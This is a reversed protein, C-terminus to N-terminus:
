ASEKWVKNGLIELILSDFQFGIEYEAGIFTDSDVRSTYCFINKLFNFFEYKLVEM